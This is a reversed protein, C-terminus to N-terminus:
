GFIKRLWKLPVRYPPYRFLLDHKWTRKYVGKMHSFTDFGWKGHYYGMGSGGV